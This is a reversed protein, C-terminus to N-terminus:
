ISIQDIKSYPHNLNEHFHEQWYLYTKYDDPTGWCIYNKVEFVKVKLGAEICRSIVDDVYFENNTKLNNEVNINFGDLFYEMKKFYMTGIIAHFDLPNKGIFKKTSVSLINNDEDVQLWSYMNPNNKSAPNNRFSWVIVDPDDKILLQNFKESDYLVGNDCASILIARDKKVDANAIAIACTRAQGDTTEKISVVSFKNIYEKIKESINTQQLLSELCIFIADDCVPLCNTAQMFMPMGDVPLMPKSVSFGEKIFRSGQGAMPLLLTTQNLLSATKVVIKEKFYESWNQYVELDYPTGWQLMKKIYFVGVSLQDLILYNYLLSVYLEGNIEPGNLEMKKCYKKLIAGSKFYYTGNSAIEEFKSSKTPEKETITLVKKAQNDMTVYAYHDNGLTHPHFGSYVAILGDFNEAKAYEIFKAFDWETGFDCYSVIIQKKEDIADLHQLLAGVPGKKLKESVSLIKGTPCIRALVEPMNTKSLHYENCIFIVDEIGPYLNLVHEIMPLGDIEILPKPLDYGAAIFRAGIGSMPIILQINKLM